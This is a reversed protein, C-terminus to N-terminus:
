FCRVSQHIKSTDQEFDREWEMGLYENTDMEVTGDFRDGYQRLIQNRFKILTGESSTTVFTDDVHPCLMIQDSVEKSHPM